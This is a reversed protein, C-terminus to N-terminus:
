AEALHPNNYAALREKRATHIGKKTIRAFVLGPSNAYMSTLQVLGLDSLDSVRLDWMNMGSRNEDLMWLVQRQESSLIPLYESIAMESTLQEQLEKVKSNLLMIVKSADRYQEFDSDMNRVERGVDAAWAYHELAEDELGNEGVLREIRSTEIGQDTIRTFFAEDDDGHPDCVLGMESLDLIAQKEDAQRFFYGSRNDNLTFLVKRQESSLIQM